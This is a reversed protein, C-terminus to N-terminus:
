AAEKAPASYEAALDILNPAKFAAVDTIKYINYVVEKQIYDNLEQFLRYAEKKYEVLPDRQGYGRLGIGQRLRSMTSLHEVWTTDISRILMGKEIQMWNLNLEKSRSLIYNYKERAAHIAYDLIDKRALDTSKINNNIIINLEERFNDQTQFISNCVESIELINWNDMLYDTTHFNVVKTIENVVMDMVTNSLLSVEETQNNQSAKLIDRRKNYISARHKNIVDDYEVLHKRIDFNNGEVKKQASEISKSILKNEIPMDEPLKLTKMINKMRDGGFIRMLNDDTSIFFQSSGPDGQRGARGRLQNDIRRAEHRETGIVHLGGLRIVEDHKIKWAEYEASNKDPEQGGLMIDVGRGAMNTALTIASIKGADAIIQAERLHNKANLLQPRLGEREMFLSRQENKEISITG